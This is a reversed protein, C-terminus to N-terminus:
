LKSDQTQPRVIELLQFDDHKSVFEGNKPSSGATRRPRPRVPEEESRSAPAQRASAPPGEDDCRPRQKAPMPAQHRLPPRVRTSRPARRDAALDSRQNDTERSVVRPPTILANDAFLPRPMATEAVVTRVHSRAAPRPGAPVRPPIVQRSNTRACRRLMSATSKKVTSVIQSCRSYTSKKMSSPLRRTCM